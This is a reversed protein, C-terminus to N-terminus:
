KKFKITKKVKNKGYIVQYTYKKNVKLKKYVSNKITFTAVGKKNTKAKFTKKNFKLTIKKNKLYKKNVKKLTVKIKVTKASKKANINKATIISKVTVKKTITLNAYTAKVTYTKPALKIKISAYGDKNTTKSYTKGNITIKVTQGALPEGDATLRVKFYKGSTYLMNLNSGTLKVVPVHEKVVVGSKTIPSYKADGSYTVTINHSGETLEPIKVTAKGNVLTETYNVGDVTVTLTGTADSPLSISYTTSDGSPVTVTEDTVPVNVKFVNFSTSNSAPNLKDDGAFRALVTYNGVAL